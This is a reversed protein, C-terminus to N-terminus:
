SLHAYPTEMQPESFTDMVHWGGEYCGSEGPSGLLLEERLFVLDFGFFRVEFATEGDSGLLLEERLCLLAFEFGLPFLLVLTLDARLPPLPRRSRLGASVAGATDASFGGAPLFRALGTAVFADLGASVAGATDASFGGAPLFRALGPAVFADLADDRCDVPSVQSGASM